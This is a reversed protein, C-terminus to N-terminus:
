EPVSEGFHLVFQEVRRREAPQSQCLLARIEDVAEVCQAGLADVQGLRLGREHADSARVRPPLADVPPRPALATDRGCHELPGPDCAPRTSLDRTYGWWLGM